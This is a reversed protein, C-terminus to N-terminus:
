SRPSLKSQPYLPETKVILMSLFPTPGPPPSFVWLGFM